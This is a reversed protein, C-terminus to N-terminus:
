TVLVAIISNKTRGVKATTTGMSPTEMLWTAFCKSTVLYYPLRVEKQSEERSIITLVSVQLFVHAPATTSDLWKDRIVNHKEDKM